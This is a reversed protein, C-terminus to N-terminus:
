HRQCHRRSLIKLSTTRKLDSRKVRTWQRLEMKHVAAGSSKNTSTLDASRALKIEGMIPLAHQRKRMTLPMKTAGVEPAAM